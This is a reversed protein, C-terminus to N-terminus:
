FADSVITVPRRGNVNQPDDATTEPGVSTLVYRRGHPHYELEKGTFPDLVLDGLELRELSDPVRGHEWRFRLIACHCALIRLMSERRGYTDMVKDLTPSILNMMAGAPTGDDLPVGGLRSRQWLPKQAEQLEQTFLQGMRKQVERVLQEADTPTALGKAIADLEPGPKEGTGETLATAGQAQYNKVLDQITQMEARREGDLVTSLPDSRTLAEMSVQYLQETDRASLQDLHDGIARTEMAEIAVGVLGAIITDTQIADALRLGERLNNIADENRGDSFFVYQQMVLLRALRRFGAFEPLLTTYTVSDRPSRIPKRLGEHILQLAAAVHRDALVQRKETLTASQGKEDVNHFLKSNSLEDCAAVLEEYGNKGTPQLIVKGFFKETLASQDAQAPAMPIAVASFLSLLLLLKRM